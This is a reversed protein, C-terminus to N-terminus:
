KIEYLIFIYIYGMPRPKINDMNSYVIAECIIFNICFVELINNNDIILYIFNM